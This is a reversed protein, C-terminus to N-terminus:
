VMARSSNAMGSFVVLSKATLGAKIATQYPESQKAEDPGGLRAVYELAQYNLDFQPNTM